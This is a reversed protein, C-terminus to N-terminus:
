DRGEPPRHAHRWSLWSQFALLLFGAGAIGAFGHQRDFVSIRDPSKKATQRDRADQARQQEAVLRELAMQNTRLTDQIRRLLDPDLSGKTDLILRTLRGNEEVLEMTAKTTELSAHAAALLAEPDQVPPKFGIWLVMTALTLYALCKGAPHFSRSRTLFRSVVAGVHIRSPPPRLPKEM